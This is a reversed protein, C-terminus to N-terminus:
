QLRNATNNSAGGGGGASSSDNSGKKGDKGKLIKMKQKEAEHALKLKSVTEFMKLTRFYTNLKFTDLELPGMARGNIYKRKALGSDVIFSAIDHTIKIHRNLKLIVDNPKHGLYHRELMPVSWKVKDDNRTDSKYRKYILNNYKKSICLAIDRLSLGQKIKKKELQLILRQADSYIPDDEDDYDDTIKCRECNEEDDEDPLGHARESIKRKELEKKHQPLLENEFTIIPEGETGIIASAIKNFGQNALSDLDNLSMFDNNNDDNNMDNGFMLNNNKVTKSKVSKKSATPLKSQTYKKNKNNNNNNGGMFGDVLEIDDNDDNYDNYDNNNNFTERMQQQRDGDDEEEEVAANYNIENENFYDVSNNNQRSNYVIDDFDM